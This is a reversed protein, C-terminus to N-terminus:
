NRSPIYRCLPRETGEEDPVDRSRKLDSQPIRMTTRETGEEDPVDRSRLRAQALIVVRLYRETGEEDPVDRSRVAFISFVLRRLWGKLERRMPFMEAEAELAVFFYLRKGSHCVRNKSIEKRACFM